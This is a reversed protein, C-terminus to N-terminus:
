RRQRKLASPDRRRVPIYTAPTIKRVLAQSRWPASPARHKRVPRIHRKIASWASKVAAIIHRAMRRLIVTLQAKANEVDM